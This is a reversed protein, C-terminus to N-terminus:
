VLCGRLHVGATSQLKAGMRRREEFARYALMASNRLDLFREAYSRAGRNNAEEISKNAFYMFRQYDKLVNIAKVKELLKALVKRDEPTM